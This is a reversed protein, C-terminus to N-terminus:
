TKKVLSARAFFLRGGLSCIVVRRTELCGGVKPRGNGLTQPEPDFTPEKQTFKVRKWDIEVRILEKQQLKKEKRSPKRMFYEWAWATVLEELDVHKDLM